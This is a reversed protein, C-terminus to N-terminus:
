FRRLDISEQSPAPVPRPVPSTMRRPVSQRNRITDSSPAVPSGGLPVTQNGLTSSPPPVLPVGPQPRNPLVIQASVAKEVQIAQGLQNALEASTNAQSFRGFTSAAVCKLQRTAVPNLDGFGIVNVQFQVGHRALDVAVACPDADCTEEGDSILIITKKSAFRSFDKTIAQQLSFSIPTAGYAQAMQAKQAVFAANGVAIPVVLRSARCPDFSFGGGTNGYVRLGIKATPPLQRLVQNLTRKAITLKSENGDLPEEMSGSADLIILIEEQNPVNVDVGAQLPAAAQASPLAPALFALLNLSVLSAILLFSATLRAPM